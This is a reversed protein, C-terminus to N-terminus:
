ATKSVDGLENVGAVFDALQSREFLMRLPIRVGISRGIRNCVRMAALSEGGLAFFDDQPDVAPVGLVERWADAVTRELDPTRSMPM